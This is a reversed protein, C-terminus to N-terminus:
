QLCKETIDYNGLTVATQALKIFYEKEKLEQAAEFAV